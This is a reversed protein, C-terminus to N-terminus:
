EFWDKKLYTCVLKKCREIFASKGNNSMMISSKMDSLDTDPTIEVTYFKLAMLCHNFESNADKKLQEDFKEKSCPAIDCNLKELFQLLCSHYFHLLEEFCQEMIDPLLSGCLFYPLDRTPSCVSSLQFDVFKM